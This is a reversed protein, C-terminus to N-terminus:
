KKGHIIAYHFFPYIPPTIGLQTIHNNRDQQRSEAMRNNGVDIKYCKFTNHYKGAGNNTIQQDHFIQAHSYFVRYKLIIKTNAYM